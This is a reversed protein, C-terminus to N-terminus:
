LDGLHKAIKALRVVAAEGGACQVDEDSSSSDLSAIQTGPRKQPHPVTLERNTKRSSNFAPSSREVIEKAAVIFVPVEICVTTRWTWRM